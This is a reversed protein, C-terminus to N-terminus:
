SLTSCNEISKPFNKMLLEVAFDGSCHLPNIKKISSNNLYDITKTLRNDDSNVLHLGGKVETITKDSVSEIYTITNVIGSHCCGTVLSLSDGNDVWLSLDDPLLDKKNGQPDLYFPGGTTEFSTHRPIEGTIWVGELIETPKFCWVIKSHHRNMIASSNEKTLGVPKIPKGKHLSYRPVTCHPHAVLTIDPNLKIIKAVNGGHDYHGHSLVLFDLNELSVGLEKSNHFLVDGQGTDFLIRKDNQEILLALGHESKLPDQLTNNVLVTTKM